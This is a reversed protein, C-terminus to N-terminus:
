YQLIIGGMPLFGQALNRTTGWIGKRGKPQCLFKRYDDGDEPRHDYTMSELHSFRGVRILSFGQKPNNDDDLVVDFIEQIKKSAISKEPYFNIQENSFAYSYFQCCANLLSIADMSIKKLDIGQMAITDDTILRFEFKTNPIVAEIFMSVGESPLGKLLTDKGCNQVDTIITSDDPLLADSLKVGKFPDNQIKEYHLLHEEIRESRKKWDGCLKKEVDSVVKEYRGNALYDLVATRISGKISSGPIYPKNGSFPLCQVLLQNELKPDNLKELYVQRFSNSTKARHFWTNCNEPNFSDFILKRLRGINNREETLSIFLKAFIKDSNMMEGINIRYFLDNKVVYGLPDVHHEVGGGVHVPLAANAKIYLIKKM